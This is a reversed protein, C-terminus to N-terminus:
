LYMETMRRRIVSRLDRERFRMATREVLVYFMSVEAYALFDASEPLLQLDHIVRIM